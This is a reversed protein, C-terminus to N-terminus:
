PNVLTTYEVGCRTYIDDYVAHTVERTTERCMFNSSSLVTSTQFSKMLQEVNSNNIGRVRLDSEATMSASYTLMFPVYYSATSTGAGKRHKALETCLAAFSDAADSFDDDTAEAM